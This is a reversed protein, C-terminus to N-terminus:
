LHSMLWLVMAWVAGFVFAWRIWAPRRIGDRYLGSSTEDVAVASGVTVFGILFHVTAEVFDMAGMPVILGSLAGAIAGGVVPQAMSASWGALLFPLGILAGIVMGAVATLVAAGLRFSLDIQKM